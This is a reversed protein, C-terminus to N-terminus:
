AQGCVKGTPPLSNTRIISTRTAQFLAWSQPNGSSSGDSSAGLIHKGYVAIETVTLAHYVSELRVDYIPEVLIKDGNKLNAISGVGLTSLVRNLNTANNQWTKMGSPAPLASAFGMSSETYCNTSNKSTSFGGNQNNILQKKNYKTAFKYGNSSEYNGYYTNRFVDIVKSVKNTGAKNVTSFRYGICNDDTTRIAYGNAGASTGNGGGGASSGDWSLAFASISAASLVTVLALLLALIKIHKKM